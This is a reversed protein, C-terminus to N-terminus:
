LITIDLTEKKWKIGKGNWGNICKVGVGGQAEWYLLNDSYDDILINGKAYKAKDKGNRVIIIHEPNLNPMHEYLWLTKDIDARVNPSATLIYVDSNNYALQTNIAAVLKTPALKQFFGAEKSFREIANPESNFDALVGDMDFYTKM